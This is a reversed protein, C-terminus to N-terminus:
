FHLFSSSSLNEFVSTNNIYYSGYQLIAFKQGPQKESVAPWPWVFQHCFFVRAAHDAAGEGDDAEGGRQVKEM